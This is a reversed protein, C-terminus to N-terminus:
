APQFRYSYSRYRNVDSGAEEWSFGHRGWHWLRISTDALPTVGIKGLRYSFAWDEGLYHLKDPGHPVILPQFFPWVGRGWHTNCLPLSLEAILRRLVGARVRLFGTAAYRLPYPGVAEPGFLVEKVGDAFVSALERKGKKAYVASVVPEPRALLRLADRPDFGIDSDVFLVSEAGDHLADSLMENRAVDIASCGGRRVVRVGAGELRRLAEECEWEIGNMHPVLVVSQGRGPPPGGADGAQWNELLRWGRAGFRAVLLGHRRAFADAAERVGQWDYDDGGLIAKPFLQRALTLEATVADFSHEADVYVFDPQLGHEAVARLGDLTSMRLPVVRDRYDWCRALFTEYLRPLLERFREQTQHEPSGAWHDVSIVTAGPAHDAIFRTSLGLWAGLEVVLKTAPSLVRALMLETGAGLWGEEQGPAADGPRQEPWPRTGALRLIGAAQGNRAAAGNRSVPTRRRGGLGALGALFRAYRPALKEAAWQQGAVLALGRQGAAFAQDDYLRLVAEVWPAREAPTLLTPVPATVREPLPLVLGAGGLLEPAAGRDSAIVPVGHALASLATLPVGEWGVLPALFVRAASWVWGLARAPVCQVSGGGPLTLSGTGGIVVVRIKPRRRALEQAIQIFVYLGNGPSSADFVVAGAPDAAVPERAVVPPLDVCPLGLGERLYEAALRTPAVVVDADRFPGPDRPTADPQLAVTRLGRARAAALVDASCPGTPAVVVDPSGALATGVLRLFAARETDDPAHPKTSPGCFLTVPVGDATVRLAARGQGAPLATAEPAGPDAAVTWGHDALWPGPVTEQDGPVVFRCVVECRMGLGALARCLERHAGAEPSDDLWNAETVFLTKGPAREHDVAEAPIIAEALRSTHRGGDTPPSDDTAFLTQRLAPKHVLIAM